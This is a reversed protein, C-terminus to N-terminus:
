SAELIEGGAAIIKEKAKKSISMGPKIILKIAKKVSGGGLVKTFPLKSLDIVIKGNGEATDIVKSEALEILKGINIAYKPRIPGHRYFGRSGYVFGEKLFKIKMHDKVGARGYGGRQGKGRHGGSVQGYGAYRKGRLKQTKRKKRSLKIKPM